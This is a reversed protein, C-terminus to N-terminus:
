GWRTLIQININGNNENNYDTIKQKVQQIDSKSFYERLTRVKVGKQTNAKYYIELEMGSIRVTEVTSYPIELKVVQKNAKVIKDNTFTYAERMARVASQISGAVSVVLFVPALILECLLLKDITLHENYYDIMEKTALVIVITELVFLVAYLTLM